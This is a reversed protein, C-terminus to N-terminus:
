FFLMTLLSQLERALSVAEADFLSRKFEEEMLPMVEEQLFITWDIAKRLPTVHSYDALFRCLVSGTRRIRREVDTSWQLILAKRDSPIVLTDPYVIRTEMVVRLMTVEHLMATESSANPDETRTEM